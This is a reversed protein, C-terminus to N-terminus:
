RRGRMVESVKKGLDERAAGVARRDERIKQIVMRGLGALVVGALIPLLMSQPKDRMDNM